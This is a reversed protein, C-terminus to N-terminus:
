WEWFTEHDTGKLFVGHKGAHIANLYSQEPRPRVHHGFGNRGRTGCGQGRGESLVARQRVNTAEVLM